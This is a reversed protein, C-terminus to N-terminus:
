KAVAEAAINGSAGPRNEVIVPQGWSQHLKDGITRALIDATGGAPFIVVIHIPKEPYAQAWVDKNESFMFTAALLIFFCIRSRGSSSKSNRLTGLSRCLERM